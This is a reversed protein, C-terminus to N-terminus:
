RAGWLIIAAGGLALASGALDSLTPVQRDALWLWLLSGAIYVGGYAAFARGAYAPPTLALAFAFGALAFGGPILWLASAGARWWMWVAYCGALELAVALPFLLATM